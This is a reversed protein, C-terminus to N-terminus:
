HYACLPLHSFLALVLSSSAKSALSLPQSASLHTAGDHPGSPLARPHVRDKEGRIDCMLQAYGNPVM